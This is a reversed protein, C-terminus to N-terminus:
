RRKVLRNAVETRFYQKMEAADRIFRYLIKGNLVSAIEKMVSEQVEDPTNGVGITEIIVGRDKLIQAAPTPDASDQGDSLLIFHVTPERRLITNAQELPRILSTGGGVSIGRIAADIRRRNGRCPTFPLATYAHDDFAIVAITDQYEHRADLMGILAEQAAHLRDDDGCPTGMSGSRDLAVMFTEGPGIVPAPTFGSTLRALGRGAKAIFSDAYRM